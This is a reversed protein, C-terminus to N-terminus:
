HIQQSGVWLCSAARAERCGVDREEQQQPVNRGVMEEGKWNGECYLGLHLQLWWWSIFWHFTTAWSGGLALAHGMGAWQTKSLACRPQPCTWCIILAMQQCIHIPYQPYVAYVAHSIQVSCMYTRWGKTSCHQTQEGLEQQAMAISATSTISPHYLGWAKKWKWVHM